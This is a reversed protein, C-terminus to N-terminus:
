SKRGLFKHVLVWAVKVNELCLTLFCFETFFLSRHELQKIFILVLIRHCALASFNGNEKKENGM